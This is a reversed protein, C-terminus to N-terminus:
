PAEEEFRLIEVLPPVIEESPIYGVAGDVKLLFTKMAAASPLVQPASIGHFHLEDYYADWTRYDTQLVQRLFAKRAPHSAPLNLPVIGITDWKTVTKFYIQQLSSKSLQMGNTKVYVVSWSACFLRASILLLTLARM